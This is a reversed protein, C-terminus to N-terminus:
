GYKLYHQKKTGNMVNDALKDILEKNEKIFEKKSKRSKKWMDYLGEDNDVWQSRDDNNM